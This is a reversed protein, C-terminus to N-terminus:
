DILLLYRSSSAEIVNFDFIGFMQQIGSRKELYMDLTLVQDGQYPWQREIETCHILYSGRVDWLSVSSKIDKQQGCSCATAAAQSTRARKLVPGHQYCGDNSDEEVYSERHTSVPNALLGQREAYLNVHTGTSPASKRATQKTRYTQVIRYAESDQIIIM